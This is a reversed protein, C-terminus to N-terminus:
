NVNLAEEKVRAFVTTTEGRKRSVIEFKPHKKSLRSALDRASNANDFEGLIGWAGVEVDGNLTAELIADLMPPYVENGTSEVDEEPNAWQVM